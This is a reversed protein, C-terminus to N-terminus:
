NNLSEPFYLSDRAIDVFTKKKHLLKMKFDYFKCHNVIM